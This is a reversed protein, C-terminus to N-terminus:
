SPSYAIESHQSLDLGMAEEKESVRLPVFVNVVKLIVFTMVGSFVWSAGVAIVQILLQKPNGYFLGNAAGSNIVTTAFLGTCIAGVTGGVGHVAWVDLADDVNMRDRLQVAGYCVLSVVLGILISAAPTVYGAAPTIAVLGAVAGATAGVVSPVGKHMWSITMWTLAAMAAATNTNVFASTALGNAALASGANFGFWGFWLLACGLVVMPIDHPEVEEGPKHTIRKGLVWAAVLASVGSSIHVVTGGAFDLAGLNSLWGGHGWVWHALPDYVFTAWLLSFLVFAKFRKREAFAGSILAPTIIAFMMQFAMYAQHPITAAYDKDPALTVGNLGIWSLDGIIGWGKFDPGFALSYGWLVWQVSILCLIFFSHMVTSLVNKRRVLGGYFFGLGPTMLMVLAASALVWATDGASM